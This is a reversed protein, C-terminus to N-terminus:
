NSPKDGGEPADGFASPDDLFKALAEDYEDAPLEGFGLRTVLAEPHDIDETTPLADFHAWLEDRVKAGHAESVARWMAAAERLRRPRLELGVLLAFAREAPGGVARRRRVTEALAVSKPLRATADETVVDVWGEILALMTELRALAAEQQETRPPIFAGESLAARIGDPDSPDLTQALEEMRSVDISVGRAFETISSILHLRLWKAHQFLRAHATERVALYLEIQERDVDLGEAFDGINQPLLSPRSHDLVPVGIDGGAVVEEALNGVVQGLQVAFMAGGIGRMMSSSQGLLQAMEPPTQETLVNMLADAISTAVPESLSTWFQISGTIWELRTLTAPTESIEGLETAESLWLQAVRFAQDFRAAEEQSIERNGPQAVRRAQDRAVQWDLGNGPNSVAAQLQSLLAQVAAPDNPLGAVGALKAPDFGGQGSLLERLLKRLEDESGDDPIPGQADSM